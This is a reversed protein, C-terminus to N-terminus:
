TFFCLFIIYLNMQLVLRVYFLANVYRRKENNGFIIVFITKEFAISFLILFAVAIVSNLFPIVSQLSLACNQIINVWQVSIDDYFTENPRAKSICNRLTLILVFVHINYGAPSTNFGKDPM